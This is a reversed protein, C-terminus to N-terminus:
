SCKRDDRQTALRPSIRIIDYKIEFLLNPHNNLIYRKLFKQSPYDNKGTFANADDILIVHNKIKHNIIANLENEIPTQKIGRATIGKSFHADLWFLCPKKINELLRPLVKSSDGNIVKIHRFIAFKRKANNYLNKDLEITYIKQFNNKVANVMMGLYTGTEVFILPDYKKQYNKIVRQKILHPTYISKSKIYWNVTLLVQFIPFILDYLFTYKLKQSIKDM